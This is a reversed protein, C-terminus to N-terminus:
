MRNIQRDNHDTHDNHYKTHGSTRLAILTTKFISFLVIEHVILHMVKVNVFIRSPTVSVGRFPKM